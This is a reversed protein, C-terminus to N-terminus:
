RHCGGLRPWQVESPKRGAARRRREIWAGLPILVLGILFIAPLIHFFFIGIYPNSHMGFLDALFVVVQRRLQPLHAAHPDRHGSVGIVFPSTM